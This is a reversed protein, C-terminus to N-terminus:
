KVTLLADVTPAPDVFVDKYQVEEDTGDHIQLGIPGAMISSLTPEQYTLAATGNLAVRCFGKALFCLIETTNWTGNNITPKGTTTTGKLGGNLKYDWTNLGGSTGGPPIILKCNGYGGPPTTRAGWFCIGLHGTGGQLVMNSSVIIRFDGYNADTVLLQGSVKGTGKGDIVGDKVSFYMAPGQEWGNLTKGDFISTTGAAPGAGGTAGASGGGAMGGAQGSAGAQAGGGGAAGGGGTAGGGGPSGAGGLAGGTGAPTSGATGGSGAAGSSGGTSSGGTSGPVSGGAGAGGAQTGGAGSSQGGAGGGGSGADNSSCSLLLATGLLAAAVLVTSHSCPRLRFQRASM